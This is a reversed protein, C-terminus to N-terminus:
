ADTPGGGLITPGALVSGAVPGDYLLASTGQGHHKTLSVRAMDVGKAHYLTVQVAGSWSAATVVLGSTKSGLRSAEGRQGQITGRFQAM